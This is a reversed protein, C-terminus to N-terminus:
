NPSGKNYYHFIFSPYKQEWDPPPYGKADGPGAWTPSPHLRALCGPGCPPMLIRPWPWQKTVAILSMRLGSNDESSITKRRLFLSVFCSFLLKPDMHEALLKFSGAAKRFNHSLSFVYVFASMQRTTSVCPPSTGSVPPVRTEPRQATGPSLPHLPFSGPKTVSRRALNM